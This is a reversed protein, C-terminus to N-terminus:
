LQSLMADLVSFHLNYLILCHKCGWKQMDLNIVIFYLYYVDLLIFDDEYWMHFIALSFGLIMLFPKLFNKLTPNKM